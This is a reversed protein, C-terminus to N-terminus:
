RASELGAKVKAAHVVRDLDFPKGVIEYVREGVGALKEVQGANTSTIVFECGGMVPMSCIHQFLRWNNEYPPAIDYIIVKPRHQRILQEVDVEGDRIEHTMATVVVFGNQEFALRLIDVIDPSSNIVAVVIPAEAM